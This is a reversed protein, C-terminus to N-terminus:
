SVPDPKFEQIMKAIVRDVFRRHVRMEEAITRSPTGQTYLKLIRRFVPPQKDIFRQWEENRMVIQSPTSHRDVYERPVKENPPELPRERNVNHKTGQMRKRITDTVTSEAVKCLFSVFASMHKFSYKHRHKRWFALWADQVFDHSDFKSRLVQPLKRRVAQRMQWEVQDHLEQNASASGACARDM